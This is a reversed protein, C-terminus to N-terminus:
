AHGDCQCGHVSWSPGREGGGTVFSSRGREGRTGRRAGVPGSAIGRPPRAPADAFGQHSKGDEAGRPPARLPEPPQALIRRQHRLLACAAVRYRGHCRAPRESDRYHPQHPGRAPSRTRGCEHRARRAGRLSARRPSDCATAPASARRHDVDAPRHPAAAPRDPLRRRPERPRSPLEHLPAGFRRLAAYARRCERSPRAVTSIRRASRPGRPARSGLATLTWARWRSGRAM